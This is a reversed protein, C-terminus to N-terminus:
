KKISMHKLTLSWNYFTGMQEFGQVRQNIGWLEQRLANFLYPCDDNIIAGVEHYIEARKAQDYEAKGKTILDDLYENIYMGRNYGGPATADISFMGSPDPDIALSWGQTWCQFKEFDRKDVTAMVTAFDSIMPILEVGVAKWQEQLFGVLNKPWAADEYIYITISLKDGNKERIGDAGVKWGASDLLSKAKEPDYPYPNLTSPDPYAWLAPSIATLCPVAFGKYEAYTTEERNWAYMLAQRVEKDKFQPAELNLLIANYGLGLFQHVNLGAAKMQDFNDLKADPAAIDVQGSTLAPVTTENPIVLFRVGDIQYKTGYYEDNVVLELAEGPRWDDIMMAGSGMPTANKAKFEDYTESTYYAKSMIGYQFDWVKKVNPEKITFSIKYDDIVKIGSVETAEGKAFEPVGVIDVVAVGRPGDYDGRAISEFTFKVDHATLKTGDHFKADKRLTYTYTLKDESLEWATALSDKDVTLEGTPTQTLLFSFVLNCVYGNYVDTFLIPNFSGSLSSTAYRIINDEKADRRKLPQAGSSSGGASSCAVSMLSVVLILSLILAISRKM